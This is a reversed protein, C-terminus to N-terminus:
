GTAYAGLATRCWRDPAYAAVVTAGSAITRGIGLGDLMRLGACVAIAALQFSTLPGQDPSRRVDWTVGGGPRPV